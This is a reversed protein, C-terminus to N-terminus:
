REAERVFVKRGFCNRVGVSIGEESGVVNKALGTHDVEAVSLYEALVLIHEELSRGAEVAEQVVAAQGVVSTGVFQSHIHFDAAVVPAVFNQQGTPLISHM